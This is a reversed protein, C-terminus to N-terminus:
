ETLVFLELHVFHITRFPENGKDLPHWYVEGKRPIKYYLCNTCRNVYKTVFDCMKPFYFNEKVRALVAIWDTTIKIGFVLLSAIKVTQEPEVPSRSLTDAVANREGKIYEITYQYETLKM